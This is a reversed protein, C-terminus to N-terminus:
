VGKLGAKELREILSPKRAHEQRIAMLRNDFLGKRGASTAVERLDVLLAVAQDYEGPKRAAILTDVKQWAEAERGALQELHRARAQAKAQEQRAREAAKREMEQRVREQRRADALALLEGVTRSDSATPSAQKGALKELHQLLEMGVHPDDGTVLRELINDKKEGSLTRLGRAIEEQTLPHAPSSVHGAVAADVLDQDIGMFDMFAQQAPTLAGLGAPVPPEREKEDLTEAQVALLWGLYLPRRDGRMLETRLPSLSAMWGQGDDNEDDGEERSYDLIVFGNTKRMAAPNDPCYLKATNAALLREPIRIQLQRSGWNALYLFIDFCSEVLRNPNGKFDGWNYHNTFSYPTVHGRSSIDHLYAMEQDSLPHDMALFEYYQYESM